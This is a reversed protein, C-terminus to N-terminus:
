PNTGPQRRYPQLPVPPSPAATPPPAPPAQSPAMMPQPALTVPAVPVVNVVPAVPVAQAPLVQVRPGATPVVTYGPGYVGTCGGLAALAIIAGLIPLHKM